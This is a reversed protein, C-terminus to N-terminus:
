VGGVVGVNFRAFIIWDTATTGSSWGFSVTIDATTSIASYAPAGNNASILNPDYVIIGSGGTSIRYAGNVFGTASVGSSGGTSSGNLFISTSKSNANNTLVAGLGLLLSRDASLVNAKVTVVNYGHVATTVGTYSAGVTFNIAAGKKTASLTGTTTNSMVCWYWGATIAPTTAISPLYVWFGETYARTAATGFTINGSSGTNITGSPARAYASPSTFLNAIGVPQWSTGNSVWVSNNCDTVIRQQGTYSSAPSPLNAFTCSTLSLEGVTHSANWDSPLVIDALRTGQPYLGASIAADLKQQDWDPITNTKTHTITLSM